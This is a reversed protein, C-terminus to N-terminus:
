RRGQRTVAVAGASNTAEALTVLLQALEARPTSTLRRSPTAAPILQGKGPKNTLPGPLVLTWDLSSNQIIRESSHKDAAANRM